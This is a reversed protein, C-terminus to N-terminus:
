IKQTSSGTKEASYRSGELLAMPFARVMVRLSPVTRSSTRRGESEREDQIRCQGRRELDVDVEGDSVGATTLLTGGDEVGLELAVDSRVEGGLVDFLVDKRGIRKGAKLSFIRARHLIRLMTASWFDSSDISM